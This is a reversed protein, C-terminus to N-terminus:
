AGHAVGFLAAQAAKRRDLEDQIAKLSDAKSGREVESLDYGAATMDREIEIMDLSVRSIELWEGWERQAQEIADM